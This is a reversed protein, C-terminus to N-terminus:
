NTWFHGDDVMELSRSPLQHCSGKRVVGVTVSGKHDVLVNPVEGGGYCSPRATASEAFGDDLTSNCKM